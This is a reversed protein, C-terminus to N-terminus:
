MNLSSAASGVGPIQRGTSINIEKSKEKLM